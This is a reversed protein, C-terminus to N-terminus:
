RRRARVKAQAGRAPADPPKAPPLVGSLYAEVPGRVRDLEARQGAIRDLIETATHIAEAAVTISEVDAKAEDAGFGGIRLERIGLANTIKVLLDLSLNDDGKELQVLRTRSVGALESLENLTLGQTRRHLRILAALPEFM